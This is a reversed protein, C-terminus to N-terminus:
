RAKTSEIKIRVSPSSADPVLWGQSVAYGPLWVIEGRCTVVPCRWRDDARVKRDVFIDQLKKRGRLGQPSMADGPTWGRVKLSAGGVKAADIWALAPFRGIAQGKVRRFGRDETASVMADLRPLATKGPVRVWVPRISDRATVAGPRLFWVGHVSRLLLGGPLSLRAGAAIVDRVRAVLESGVAAPPVGSEFLWTAVVRAQIAPACRLFRRGHLRGSRICARQARTALASLVAEDEGARAALRVLADDIKQNLTARLLPLVDHRVRNRQFARSTNSEDERWPIGHAKLFAVADRHRVDLLPRVLRAIGIPTLHGIGAVGTVSTGRCIRQLVTEAQDDATHGVAIVHAGVEAAISVLAERRCTRAAMEISVGDRRARAKVDAHVVVCPLGLKWAHHCVSAEDADSSAGRLGHNIHAVVLRARLDGRCTLEHLAHLLAVSDAGGSVAVVVVRAGRFLDHRRITAMVSNIM